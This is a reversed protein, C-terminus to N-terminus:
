RNAGKSECAGDRTCGPCQGTCGGRDNPRLAAFVAFLAAAGLVGVILTM